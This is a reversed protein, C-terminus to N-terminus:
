PGSWVPTLHLGDSNKIEWSGGVDHLYIQVKIIICLMLTATDSRWAWNKFTHPIQTNCCIFNIILNVYLFRKAESNLESKNTYHKECDM